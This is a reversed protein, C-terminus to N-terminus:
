LFLFESCIKFGSSVDTTYHRYIKQMFTKRIYYEILQGLKLIQGEKSRSINFKNITNFKHPPTKFEKVVEIMQEQLNLLPQCLFLPLHFYFLNLIELGASKINLFANKM